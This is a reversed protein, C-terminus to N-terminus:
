GKRNVRPSQRDGGPGGGALYREVPKKRRAMTRIRGGTDDRLEKLVSRMREDRAMASRLSSLTTEMLTRAEPDSSAAALEERSPLEGLEDQLEQRAKALSEHRELDGEELAEEQAKILAVYRAYSSLRYLLDERPAGRSPSHQRPSM